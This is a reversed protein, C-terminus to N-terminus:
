ESEDLLFERYYQMVKEEHKQTEAPKRGAKIASPGANYANIAKLTHNQENRFSFLMESLYYIGIQINHKPSFLDMNKIKLCNGAQEGTSPLVQALGIAGASSVADPVFASEHRILALSLAVPVNYKHSYDVIYFSMLNIDKLSMEKASKFKDTDPLNKVTNIITQKVKKTEYQKKEKLSIINKYATNEDITENLSEIILSERELLFSNARNANAIEKKASNKADAIKSYVHSLFFSNIVLLVILTTRMTTNKQKM